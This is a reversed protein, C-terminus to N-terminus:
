GCSEWRGGCKSLHHGRVGDQWSNLSFVKPNDVFGKEREYQLNLGDPLEVPEVKLQIWFGVM